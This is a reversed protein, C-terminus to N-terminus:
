PDLARRQSATEHPSTLLNGIYPELSCPIHDSPILQPTVCVSWKASLLRWYVTIVGGGSITIPALLKNLLPATDEHVTLELLELTLVLNDQGM